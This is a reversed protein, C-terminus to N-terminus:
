IRHLSREIGARNDGGFPSIRQTVYLIDDDSVERDSLIVTEDIYRAEPKRGLDLIIELLGDRNGRDRLIAAVSPPLREIIVELDAESSQKM